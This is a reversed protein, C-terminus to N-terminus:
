EKEEEGKLSYFLRFARDFVDRNPTAEVQINGEEFKVNISRFTSRYLAYKKGDESIMMREAILLGKDKLENVLRYASTHPINCEKMLEVVSKAKWTSCTLLKSAEEDALAKMLSRKAGEDKILM